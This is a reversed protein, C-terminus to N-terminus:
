HVPKLFDERIPTFVDVLTGRELARVGHPVDGAAYFVDGAKLERQEGGVTVLFRGAAVYSAQRHPHQHIAGIADKEFEVRVMMLDDGHNLVQRRVGRGMTEWGIESGEVFTTTM